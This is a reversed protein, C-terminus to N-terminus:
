TESRIQQLHHDVHDIYGHILDRLTMPAGDGIRIPTDIKEEPIDQLIRVLHSNYMTWFQVLGWWDADEYDQVKVWAVQEYNPWDLEDQILARVFRQHNNSASDILHGLIQKRNWGGPRPETAATFELIDPLERSASALLTRLRSIPAALSPARVAVAKAPANGEAIQKRVSEYHVGHAGLLVAAPNNENRLLALLLHEPRISADKLADAQEAAWNLVSQAARDLPLDVSMSVKLAAKIPASRTEIDRRMEDLSELSSMHAELMQRAERVLGLLLHEPTIYQSALSAAEYRAFFVVRRAQVTYREFM